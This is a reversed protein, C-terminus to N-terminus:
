ILNYLIHIVLSINSNCVDISCSDQQGWTDKVYCGMPFGISCYQFDEKLPYCWTVPMNDAFLILELKKELNVSFISM